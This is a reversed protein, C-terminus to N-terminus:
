PDSTCGVIGVNQCDGGAVCSDQTCPDLDDCDGHVQCPVGTVTAVATTFRFGASVADDVGDGDSDIDAKLIIGLMQLLMPKGFPLGEFASDPLAALADLMEQRRLAGALVGSLATVGGQGATVTAEIRTHHLLLDFTVGAVIAVPLVFTAGEGGARLVGDDVRADEYSVHARCTEDLDGPMVRYDCSQTAPDCGADLAQGHYLNLPFPSGDFAPSVLEFLLVLSGDAVAQDLPGNMIGALASLNNDVGASCKNLPACTGPDDDVDLGSGPHGDGGVQFSTVVNVPPAFAPPCLVCGLAQGVCAGAQCADGQTCPAGDDCAQGDPSALHVCGLSPACDDETCAEGDDCILSAGGVCAGAQCADGQTCADGDDCAGEVPEFACGVEEVCIGAQCPGSAPCALPEYVCSGDKECIDVTCVRGDECDKDTACLPECDGDSDCAMGEGCIGCVGGCGDPGCDKGACDPQCCDAPCSVAEDAECHSNGCLPPCDQDLHWPDFAHCCGDGDVRGVDTWVCGSGPLCVADTCPDGDDCTPAVGPLCAGDAPACREQGNCPDGDDCVVAVGPACTGEPSACLEQGNCADGDDCILAVGPVCAGSTSDCIEVGNCADGDDCSVPAGAACTATLPDCAEVGNCADGDDCLLPAGPLCAGSSPDCTEWGNCPDHDDCFIPSGAVCGGAAADCVEVGNCADGDDCVPAEGPLCAGSSPDCVEVGDCADGDDCAM